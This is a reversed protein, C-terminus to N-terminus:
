ILNIWCSNPCPSAINTRSKAFILPDQMLRISLSKGSSQDPNALEARPLVPRVQWALPEEMSLLGGSHIEQLVTEVHWAIVREEIRRDLLAVCVTETVQRAAELWTNDESCVSPDFYDNYVRTREIEYIVSSLATINQVIINTEIKEDDIM